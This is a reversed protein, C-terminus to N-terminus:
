SEFLDIEASVSKKLSHADSYLVTKGTLPVSSFWSFFFSILTGQM